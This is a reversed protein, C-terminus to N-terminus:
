QAYGVLLKELWMKMMEIDFSTEEQMNRLFSSTQGKSIEVSLIKEIRKYLVSNDLCIKKMERGIVIASIDALEPGDDKIFLDSHQEYILESQLHFFNRIIGAIDRPDKARREPRDDYSILKLLVISSLTAAKFSFNDSMDTEEIGAQYVEKFGNVKISTMGQDEVVVADDIEIDGFPLLDIQIGSPSILVFANQKTENFGKQQLANRVKEYAEKAPILVAFDVDRSIRSQLQGKKYWYDRAIAGILYYDIGHAHFVQGLLGFM